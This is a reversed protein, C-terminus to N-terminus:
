LRGTTPVSVHRLYGGFRFINKHYIHSLAVRAAKKAIVRQARHRAFTSNFNLNSEIWLKHSTAEGALHVHDDEGDMKVLEAEFDVDCRPSACRSSAARLRKGRELLFPM